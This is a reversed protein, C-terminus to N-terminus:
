RKDGRDWNDPNDFGPDDSDTDRGLAKSLWTQVEERKADTFNLIRHMKVTLRRSTSSWYEGTLSKATVRANGDEAYDVADRVTESNADVGSKSELRVDVEEASTDKGIRKLGDTVKTDLGFIMNPVSFKFAVYELQMGFKSAFRYFTDGHFLPKFLLTYQHDKFSNLHAVMSSLIARPQGVDDDSEFAVKQGDPRHAPDVIVLAGTWFSGEFEVAGEDPPTRQAQIKKRSVVGVIFQESLSQPVWYFYKGMHRFEFSDGLKGRLWGERSLPPEFMDPEDREILSFHFQEFVKSM